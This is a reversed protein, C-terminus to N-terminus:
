DAQSFFDSRENTLDGPHVVIGYGRQVCEAKRLPRVVVYSKRDAIHRAKPNESIKYVYWKDDGRMSKALQIAEIEPLWKSVCFM